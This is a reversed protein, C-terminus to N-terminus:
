GVVGRLWGMIAEPALASTLVLSAGDDLRNGPAVEFLLSVACGEEGLAASILDVWSNSASHLYVQRGDDICGKIIEVLPDPLDLRNQESRPPEDAPAAPPESSDVSQGAGVEEAKRQSEPDLLQSPPSDQREEVQTMAELIRALADASVDSVADGGIASRMQD